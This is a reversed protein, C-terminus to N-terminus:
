PSSFFRASGPNIKLAFNFVITSKHTSYGHFAASQLGKLVFADSLINRKRRMIAREKTRERKQTDTEEV